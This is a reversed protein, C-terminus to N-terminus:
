AALICSGAQIYTIEKVWFLITLISIIGDNLPLKLSRKVMAGDNSKKMAEVAIGLILAKDHQLIGCIHLYSFAHAGVFQCPPWLSPKLTM